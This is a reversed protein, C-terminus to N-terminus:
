LDTRLTSSVDLDRFFNNMSHHNEPNTESIRTLQVKEIMDLDYIFCVRWLISNSPVLGEGEEQSWWCDQCILDVKRVSFLTGTLLWWEQAYGWFRTIWSLIADVLIVLPCIGLILMGPDLLHNQSLISRDWDKKGSKPGCRNSGIGFFISQRPGGGM